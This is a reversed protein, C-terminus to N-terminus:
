DFPDVPEMFRVPFPVTERAAQDIAAFLQRPTVAYEAACTTIEDSCRVIAAVLANADRQQAARLVALADLAGHMRSMDDVYVVGGADCVELGSVFRVYAMRSEYETRLNQLLTMPRPVTLRWEGVPQQAVGPLREAQQMLQAHAARARAIADPHAPAAAAGMM